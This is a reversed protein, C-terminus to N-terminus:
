SIFKRVKVNGNQKVVVRIEGDLDTRYTKCHREKLNALTQESPHGFLNYKGVGILAIKPKVEELFGQTSSTKSGHHAVKLITCNLVNSSKYKKLIEKEAKEEIDGTFLMSFDGYILKAVISNNNIGNDLVMQKSNPWLIQFCTDQDLHISDGAQVCLVKVNKEKALELFRTCNKYEADQKGMIICKVGINELVAFLGGCHDSDFHSVMMYDITHIGQHLLYPVTIKEGVKFDTKEEEGGGDILITVGRRTQILTSDGQGVDIMTITFERGYMRLGQLLLMAMCVFVLGAKGKKKLYTVVRPYAKKHVILWRLDVWMAYYLFFSGWRPVITKLNGFPVMACVHTIGLFMRFLMEIGHILISPIPFLMCLMALVFSVILVVAFIPGVLMNSVISIVPINQFHYILFPLIAINATVTLQVQRVVYSVLKKIFGQKGDM